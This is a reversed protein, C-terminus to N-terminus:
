LKSLLLILRIPYQLSFFIPLIPEDSQYLQCSNKETKGRGTHFTVILMVTVDCSRWQCSLHEILLINLYVIVFVDSSWIVLGKTLPFGCTAQPNEECIALLASLTEMVDDHTLVDTLGSCFPQIKKSIVSTQKWPELSCCTLIPGTIPKTRFLCCAM